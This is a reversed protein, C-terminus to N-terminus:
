LAGNLAWFSDALSGILTYWGYGACVAMSAFVDTRLILGGVFGGILSGLPFVLVKLGAAKMKTTVKEDLAFLMGLLFLM